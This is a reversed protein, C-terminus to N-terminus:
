QLLLFTVCGQQTEAQKPFAEALWVVRCIRQMPKWCLVFPLHVLQSLRRISQMKWGTDDFEDAV